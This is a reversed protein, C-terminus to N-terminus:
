KTTGTVRYVAEILSGARPGNDLRAHMRNMVYAIALGADPDAMGISGGVGHHGFSAANPGMPVIPASNRLFGLAQHYQRGMVQEVMNHQEEMARRVTVASLLRVGDIEGGAALLAYVRAISRADGHGNSSPIEAGRWEPGNYDLPQPLERGAKFLLSEKDQKSADFITGARMPIFEAIREFLSNPTGIHFDLGLKEAVEVRFFAGLSAGSVRRVVEGLIFGQTRIHYGAQTGPEWLPKMAAIAATMIKWDYIKGPGPSPEVVPLGARHDLAFRIPIGTKGNAAFEPWYKAIPDDLDLAGRDALIHVCLATMAKSISMTNVITDRRWPLTCAADRYGGWLDVVKRGHRFVAVASGTEEGRAFNAVFADLVPEFGPVIDGAIHYDRTEDRAVREVPISNM